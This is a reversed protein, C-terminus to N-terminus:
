KLLDEADLIGQLKDDLDNLTNTEEQDKKKEAKKEEKLKEEKPETKKESKKEVEKKEAKSTETSAPKETRKAKPKKEERAEKEKKNLEEQKKKEELIEETSQKKIKVIQHRIIKDSLRMLNNLEQLNKRDLDFKFLQYYGFHNHKIPYALKKKGWFEEYTIKGQQKEIMNQVDVVVQKAEDETYKNPLIFLVEYNGDGSPKTKSM